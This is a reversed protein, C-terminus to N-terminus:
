STKDGSIDSQPLDRRMCRISPGATSLPCLDCSPKTRCVQNGLYVIQAHFDNYLPVDPPLRSVFFQQMADYGADRSFWGNRSGIRRTYADVVFVPHGCAYLLISDVTEPGFGKLSLLQSRLISTDTNKMVSFDGATYDMFWHIFLSVRKAKQNYYRSSYILSAVVEEKASFLKIPDLLGADRMAAVAKSAGTWSVNQALIAGIITEFWGDAPWWGQHGHKNLLIQYWAKLERGTVLHPSANEGRSLIIEAM